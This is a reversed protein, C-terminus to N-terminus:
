ALVYITMNRRGFQCMADYSPYFLDVLTGSGDYAFGGTDNAVAYGYVLKGDPSEIYLKSGYPIMNPNVAVGGIHVTDGTATMAGADYSYATASGTFKQKYAVKKGRHDIVTGIGGKSKTKFTTPNYSIMKYNRRKTGILVIKKRPKKIIKTKSIVTKVVKGNVIKKTYTVKKIGNKGKRKVKKQGIYLKSTKKKKTKYKIKYKKVKTKYSVRNVQIKMGANIAKSLSVSTTDHEGLSIHTYELAEKVNTKPVEYEKYAGSGVKIYVNVREVIELDSTIILDEDILADVANVTLISSIAFCCAILMMALKRLYINDVFM